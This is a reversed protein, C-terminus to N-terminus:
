AAEESTSARTAREIDAAIAAASREGGRAPARVAALAAEREAASRALTEARRRYDEATAAILPDLALDALLTGYPSAAMALPPVECAIAEAAM